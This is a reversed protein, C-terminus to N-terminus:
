EPTGSRDGRGRAGGTAPLRWTLIVGLDAWSTAGDHSLALALAVQGAADATVRDPRGAADVEARRDSKASRSAIQAVAALEGAAAWSALRHFSAAVGALAGDELDTARAHALWSALGPGTPLTEAIRGAVLELPIDRVRGAALAEQYEAEDAEPDVADGDAGSDAADKSGDATGEAASVDAVDVADGDDARTADADAADADADETDPTTRLWPAAGKVAELLADLDFDWTWSLGGNM